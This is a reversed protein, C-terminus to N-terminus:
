PNWFGTGLDCSITHAYDHAESEVIFMTHEVKGHASITFGSDFVLREDPEMSERYAVLAEWMSEPLKSM